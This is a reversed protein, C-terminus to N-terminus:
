PKISAEISTHKILLMKLRSLPLISDKDSLSESPNPHVEAFVGSYGYVPAAMFHRAGLAPRGCTRGNAKIYQTSHTCDLVVGDFFHSLLEVSGHDVILGSYGFSSGRECIMVRCDPNKLVCKGRMGNTNEPSMWQGKKILVLPYHEGAEVLLDTQRCLFAPIQIADVVGALAKAQGPEHIDTIIKIGPLAKKVKRFMKIGDRLGPGREGNIRTRNAKDFSAKLYWEADPQLKDMLAQIERGVAILLDASEAVCPGLFFVKAM